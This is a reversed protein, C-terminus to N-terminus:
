QVILGIMDTKYTNITKNARMRPEEAEAPEVNVVDPVTAGSNGISGLCAHSECSSHECEENEDDFLSHLESM